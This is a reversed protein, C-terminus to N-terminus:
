SDIDDLALLVQPGAGQVQGNSIGVVLQYLVQDFSPGNDGLPRDTAEEQWPILLAGM